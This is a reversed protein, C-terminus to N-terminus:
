NKKPVYSRRCFPSDACLLRLDGFLVPRLLGLLLGLFGEFDISDWSEKNDGRPLYVSSQAQHHAGM